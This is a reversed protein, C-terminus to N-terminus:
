PRGTWRHKVGHGFGGTGFPHLHIVPEARAGIAQHLKRYESNTRLLSAIVLKSLLPGLNEDPSAGARLEVHLALVQQQAEDCDTVLHFKGSVTPALESDELATRVSEPFIKLAYFTAAIDARRGLVIFGADTVTAAATPEHGTRALLGTLEAATVTRGRDNIRYRILPFSNDITFLLFGDPSTETFRLGPQYEVFTPQPDEDGFLAASLM